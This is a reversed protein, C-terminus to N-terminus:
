QHYYGTVYCIMARLDSGSGDTATVKLTGGAAVEMRADDISAARAYVNDAINLDMQDSIANSANFLQCKDGSGGAGGINHAMFDIVTFAREMTLEVSNTAGAATNVRIMVPIFGFDEGDDMARVLRGDMIDQLKRNKPM